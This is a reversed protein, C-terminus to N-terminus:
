PSNVSYHPSSHALVRRAVSGDFIVLKPWFDPRARLEAFPQLEDHVDYKKVIGESDWALERACRRGDEQVVQGSGRKRQTRTPM